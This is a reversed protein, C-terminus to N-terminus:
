SISVTLKENDSFIIDKSKENKHEKLYQIADEIKKQDEPNNLIEDLNRNPLTNEFDFKHSVKDITFELIGSFTRFLSKVKEMLMDIIPNFPPTINSFFRKCMLNLVNFIISIKFLLM